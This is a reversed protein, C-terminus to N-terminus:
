KQGQIKYYAYDKTDGYTINSSINPISNNTVQIKNGDTTTISLPNSNDIVFGNPLTDTITTVSQFAQETTTM